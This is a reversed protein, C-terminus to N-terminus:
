VVVLGLEETVKLIMGGRGDGELDCNGNCRRVTRGKM